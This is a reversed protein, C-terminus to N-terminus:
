YSLDSPSTGWENGKWEGEIWSKAREWVQRRLEDDREVRIRVTKCWMSIVSAEGATIDEGDREAIHKLIGLVDLADRRLRKEDESGELRMHSRYRQALRITSTASEVIEMGGNKSAAQECETLAVLLDGRTQKLSEPKPATPVPVTSDREPPLPIQLEETEPSTGLSSYTSDSKQRLKSPAYGARFILISLM